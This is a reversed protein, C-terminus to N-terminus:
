PARKYSLSYRLVLAIESKGSDYSEAPKKGNEHKQPQKRSINNRKHVSLQAEVTSLVSMTKSGKAALLRVFWSVRFLGVHCSSGNVREWARISPRVSLCVFAFIAFYGYSWGPARSTFPLWICLAFIFAYATNNKALQRAPTHTMHVAQVLLRLHFGERFTSQSEILTPSM